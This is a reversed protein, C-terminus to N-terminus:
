VWSTGQVSHPVSGDDEVALFIEEAPAANLPAPRPPRHHPARALHLVQPLGLDRLFQELVIEASLGLVPESPVSVVQEPVIAVVERLLRSLEQNTPSDRLVNYTPLM